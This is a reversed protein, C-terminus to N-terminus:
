SVGAIILAWLPVSRLLAKWPIPDLRKSYTHILADVNQNLFKKESDSIFPHTNPTSYCLMSQFLFDNKTKFRFNHFVSVLIVRSDHWNYPDFSLLTVEVVLCQWIYTIWILQKAHIRLIFFFDM